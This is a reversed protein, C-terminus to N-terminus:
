LVHKNNYHKKCLGYGRHEVGDCGDVRCKPKAANKEKREKKMEPSYYCKRCLEGRHISGGCGSRGVGVCFKANVVKANQHCRQCLGNIGGTSVINKCNNTSCKWTGKRGRTDWIMRGFANPADEPAVGSAVLKASMSLPTVMLAFITM